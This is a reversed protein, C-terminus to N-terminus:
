LLMLFKATQKKMLNLLFYIFIEWVVASLTFVFCHPLYYFYCSSAIIEKPLAIELGLVITILFRWVNIVIM